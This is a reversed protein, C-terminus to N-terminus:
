ENEKSTPTLAFGIVNWENAGSTPEALSPTLAIGEEAGSTPNVPSLTVAIGEEAGPTPEALSPTLAIGDEAGPTPKALPLTLAIGEEAGSTPNAPSHTVAIGKEAGQTHEAITMPLTNSRDVIIVRNIVDGPDYVIAYNLPYIIAKIGEWLSLEKFDVSIEKGSLSRHLDFEIGTKDEIVKLLEGLEIGEVQISIRDGEIRVNESTDPDISAISNRCLFLLFILLMFGVYRGTSKLMKNM